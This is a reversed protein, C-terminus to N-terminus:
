KVRLYVKTGSKTYYTDGSTASRLQSDKAASELKECVGTTMKTYKASDCEVSLTDGDVTYAYGNAPKGDLYKDYSTSTTGDFTTAVPWENNDAFYMVAASKLNRLNAIIRTAEAKDAASGASLAYIGSLIGIIIVVILMEVLTFGKSKSALLKLFIRKM